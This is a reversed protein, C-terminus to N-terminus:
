NEYTRQYVYYFNVKDYYRYAQWATKFHNNTSFYTLYNTYNPQTKEDFYGRADVLVLAPKKETLDTAIQDIFYNKENELQIKANQDLPQQSLRLIGSLWWFCPFRSTYKMNITDLAPILFINRSLIYYSKKNSPQKDFFAFLKQYFPWQSQTYIKQSVTTILYIPYTFFLFVLGALLLKKAKNAFFDTQYLLYCDYVLLLTALSFAPLIHYYYTTKEILYVCILGILALIFIENFPNRQHRTMVAFIVLPFCCYMFVFSIMMTSYSTDISTFYLFLLHPLVVTIYEPTFIAIAFLYSIFIMVIAVCEPRLWALWSRLKWLLYIECIALPLLFFPKITFGIGAFIGVMIAFVFGIKQRQLRMSCTLFYPMTLVLMLHERQIFEYLPLLFYCIALTPIILETLKNNAFIKKSLGYCIGLSLLAVFFFLVRLWFIANITVGKALIIAPTYLFIIMPPNTEFFDHPYTGGALLRQAAHLLFSVDWNIFTHFQITASLFIICLLALFFFVKAKIATM